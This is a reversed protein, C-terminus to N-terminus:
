EETDHVLKDTPGISLDIICPIPNIPIKLKYTQTDIAARKEILEIQRAYKSWELNAPTWRMQFSLLQFSIWFLLIFLPLVRNWKISVSSCQFYQSAIAFIMLLLLSTALFFYRDHVRVGEGQVFSLVFTTRFTFFLVSALGIYINVLLFIKMEKKMERNQINYFILLISILLLSTAYIYEWGQSFISFTIKPGLIGSCIVKYLISHFLGKMLYFLLQINTIAEGTFSANNHSFYVATMFAVSSVIIAANMLKHFPEIFISRISWVPLLVFSIASTWVSLISVLTLLLTIIWNKVPLMFCCLTLWLLIYWQVYSLKMLSEQNPSLLFIFVLLLRAFDSRILHRFHPLWIWSCSVAAIVLSFSNYLLPAYKAPFLSVYAALLRPIAHFYGAYTKTISSWFPLEYADKFFITGDEAFFQPELLAEPRRCFLIFCACLILLCFRLSSFGFITNSKSFIDENSQFQLKIQNKIMLRISKYGLM